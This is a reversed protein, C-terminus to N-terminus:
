NNKFVLDMYQLQQEPSLLRMVQYYPAVVSRELKKAIKYDGKEYGKGSREYIDNAAWDFELDGEENFMSVDILDRVLGLNVDIMRTMTLPDKAFRQVTDITYSGPLGQTPLYFFPTYFQMESQMKFAYFELWKLVVKTEEDDEGEAALHILFGIFMSQIIIGLDASTREIARKQRESVDEGFVWDEYKKNNFLEKYGKISSVLPINKVGSRIAETGTKLFVSGLAKFYQPAVDKEVFGKMGHKEFIDKYSSTLKSLYTKYYGEEITYSEWDLQEGQFRAMWTNYIWRKFLLGLRGFWTRNLLNKDADKYNGHLQRNITQVLSTFKTKVDEDVWDEFEVLEGEKHIVSNYLTSEVLEGKENRKMVVEGNEDKQKWGKMLSVMTLLQNTYETANSTSMWIDTLFKEALRERHVVGKNDMVEGQVVDFLVALQSLKSKDTFNNKSWDAIYTKIQSPSVFLEKYTERFIKKDFNRGMAAESYNSITSIFHNAPMSTFNLALAQYASLGTINTVLKHMDIKVNGLALSYEKKSVGYLVDKIFVEFNETLKEADVKVEEGTNKDLVRKGDGSLKYAKRKRIGAKEDGSYLTRVTNIKPLLTTRLSYNNAHENMKSFTFLLDKERKFPPIYDQYEINVSEVMKGDVGYREKAVRAADKEEVVNDDADLYELQKTEYNYRTKPITNEKYTVDLSNIVGEGKKKLGQLFTEEEIRPINFLGYFRKNGLKSNIEEKYKLLVDYINKEQNPLSSLSNYKSLADKDHIFAKEGGIKYRSNFDLLEGKKTFFKVVDEKVGEKLKWGKEREEYILYDFYFQNTLEDFKEVLIKKEKNGELNTREIGFISDMNSKVQFDLATYKSEQNGINDRENVLSKFNRKIELSNEIGSYNFDLKGEENTRILKKERLITKTEVVDKNQLREKYFSNYLESQITNKIADLDVKKDSIINKFLSTPELFPLTTIYDIKEKVFKSSINTKYEKDIEKLQQLVDELKNNKLSVIPFKKFIERVKKNLFQNFITKENRYSFDDYEKLIDEEDLMQVYYTENFMEIPQYSIGKEINKKSVNEERMRNELLANQEELPLTKEQENLTLIHQIKGFRNIAIKKVKVKFKDFLKERDKRSLKDLNAQKRVKEFEANEKVNKRLVESFRDKIFGTMMQTIQDNLGITERMYHSVVGVDKLAVKVIKKFDEVELFYKTNLYDEEGDNKAKTRFAKMKEKYEPYFTSTFVDVYLDNMNEKLVSAQNISDKLAQLFTKKNKSLNSLLTNFSYVFDSVNKVGNNLLYDDLKDLSLNGETNFILEGIKNADLETKNNENYQEVYEVIKDSLKRKNFKDIDKENGDLLMVDSYLSSLNDFLHYYYRGQQLLDNIDRLEIEVDKRDQLTNSKRKIEVEKLREKISKPPFEIMRKVRAVEVQLFKNDPSQELKEELSALRNKQRNIYENTAGFFLQSLYNLKNVSSRVYNDVGKIIAVNDKNELGNIIKKIESKSVALQYNDSVNELSNEYARLKVVIEDTFKELVNASDKNILGELHTNINTISPLTFLEEYFVDDSTKDVKLQETEQKLKDIRSPSNFVNIGIYTYPKGKIETNFFKIVSKNEDDDYLNESKLLELIVPNDINEHKLFLRKKGENETYFVLNNNLLYEIVNRHAKTALSIYKEDLGSDNITNVIYPIRCM